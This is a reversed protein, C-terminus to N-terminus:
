GKVGGITVNGMLSKQFIIFITLIPILVIMSATMRMPVTSLGNLNTNIMRQLGQSITPYHPLYILPVQYDNWFGVFQILWVSAIMKISLPLIISILINYYSAGDIEAAESYANSMSKYFAHFVLYYMGGFYFKQIFYGFWTDYLGLNRLLDIASTYNGVIPMIMSFLAVGYILKCIKFDHKATAYAMIAPVLTQLLPGIAAYLFTNLFVGAISTNAKHSVLTDGVYFAKKMTKLVEPFLKFIEAYNSWKFFAKRSNWGVNKDLNPFGMVNKGYNFDLVSKFSTLIGWSLVFIITLSYVILAIGIVAIFIKSAVSKDKKNM